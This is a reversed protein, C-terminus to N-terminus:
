VVRDALDERQTVQAGTADVGTRVTSITQRRRAFLIISVVTTVFGGAMLIWGVDVLSVWAIQVNVAFALIAGVVFIFIGTGISM